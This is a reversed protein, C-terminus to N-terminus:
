LLRHTIRIQCKKNEDKKKIIRKIPTYLENDPHNELIAMIEKLKLELSRREDYLRNITEEPEGATEYIRRIDERQRDM